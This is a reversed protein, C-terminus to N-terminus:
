KPRHSRLFSTLEPQELTEALMDARDLLYNWDLDARFTWLITEIDARDKTRASPFKLLILDELSAVRVDINGIRRIKARDIMEKEFPFAAFLFDLRAGAVTEVPLVRRQRVFGVPDGVRSIYLTALHLCVRDLNEASVWLTIDIDLTARPLTWAALALGGILMYPISESELDDIIGVLAVELRSNETM